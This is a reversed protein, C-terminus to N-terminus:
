AGRAKSARGHPFAAQKQAELHWFTQTTEPMSATIWRATMKAGRWEVM